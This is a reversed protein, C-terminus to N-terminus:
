LGKRARLGELAARYWEPVETGEREYGNITVRHVGLEDAVQQQTGILLRLRVLDM